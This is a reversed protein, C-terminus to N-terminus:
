GEVKHTPRLGVFNHTQCSIEALNFGLSLLNHTPAILNPKLGVIKRTQPQRDTQRDRNTQRDTQDPRDTQRDTQRDPEMSRAHDTQRDTQSWSWAGFARPQLKWTGAGLELSRAGFELSWAGAELDLNWARPESLRHLNILTKMANRKPDRM